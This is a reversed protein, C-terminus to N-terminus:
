LSEIAFLIHKVESRLIAPLGSCPAYAKRKYNLEAINSAATPHTWQHIRWEVYQRRCKWVSVVRNGTIDFV